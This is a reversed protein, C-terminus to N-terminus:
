KKRRVDFFGRVLSGDAAEALVDGHCSLPKCHCQLVKDKLEHLNERMWVYRKEDSYQLDRRFRRIAEERSCTPTIAHPNGWATSRDILVAGPVNQRIHVVKTAM